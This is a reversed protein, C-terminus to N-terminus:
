KEGRYFAAADEPAVTNIIIGSGFEFGAFLSIRPLLELHLHLDENSPSYKLVLNYSCNLKLLKGLVQKLLNALSTSNIENLNRVHAKPFLWCEYNFRSAYPTFAVWDNNEFCRRASNKESSIIACHPCDIFKRRALVLENIETPIIPTAIVQSHSHILSTGADVGSNKFVSVYAHNKSLADIRNKYADIVLSIEKESLEALQRHDPTEVIVEHTGSAKAVTYFRNDTKLRFNDPHVAAFRNEFWRVQWEKGYPLRGLETPTLSEHGPCFFCSTTAITSAKQFENPREGRKPAIIM